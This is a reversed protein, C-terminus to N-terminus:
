SRGESFPCGAQFDGLETLQSRIAWLEPFLQVKILEALSDIPTGKTGVVNHGIIRVALKFHEVRWLAVQEDVAIMADAFRYLAPNSAPNTHIELLNTKTKDIHDKFSNALQRCSRRLGVWGPSEAGSGNGLFPRLGVFAIPQLRRLLDFASICQRVSISASELLLVGREIDSVLLESADTVSIAAYNLWLESVQHPTRFRLEEDHKREEDIGQAASLLNTRMFIAYETGTPPPKSKSIM